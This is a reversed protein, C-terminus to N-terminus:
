TVRVDAKDTPEQRGISLPRLRLEANALDQPSDIDISDEEEMYFPLCRGVLFSQERLFMESKCVYIAGNQQVCAPLSQRPAALCSRDFAPSLVGDRVILTKYPHCALACVSIISDAKSEIYLNVAGRIHESTRLPSTPQLLVFSPPHSGVPFSMLYHTVVTEIPSADLAYEAPRNVVQIPYRRCIDKVSDCDTSVAIEGFCGSELAHILTHEILPRGALMAINKGPLGKSGRRAPIIAVLTRGLPDISLQRGNFHKESPFDDM